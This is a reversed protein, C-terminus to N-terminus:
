VNMCVYVIRAASTGILSTMCVTYLAGRNSFGDYNVVVNQSLCIRHLISGM